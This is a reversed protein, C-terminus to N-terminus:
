FLTPMTHAQQKGLIFDCIFNRAYDPHILSREEDCLSGTHGSLGHCTKAEVPRQFSRGFTPECNVFWYQTPKVFYDGRQQRNKDILAPKYPFNNYLYHITSYPNEVILRLGRLECTAFLKIALEYFRQRVKSRELIHAIVEKRPTKRWNINTGDFFVTNQQAFYICPFFAMILDDKSISDFISAAGEYAREIEAFLDIQHDTENFNNQIDYDYAEYGLKRFENKFTGSQEFLLHVKGTITM